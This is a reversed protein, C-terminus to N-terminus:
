NLEIKLLNQNDLEPPLGELALMPAGTERM